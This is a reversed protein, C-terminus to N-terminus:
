NSINPLIDESYSRGGSACNYWFLQRRRFGRSGRFWSSSRLGCSAATSACRALDIASGGAAGRETVVEAILSTPTGFMTADVKTFLTQVVVAEQFTTGGVDFTAKVVVM